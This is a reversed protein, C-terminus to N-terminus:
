SATLDQYGPLYRLDEIKVRVEKNDIPYIKIQRNGDVKVFAKKGIAPVEIELFPNGGYKKIFYDTLALALPGAHYQENWIAWSTYKFKFDMGRMVRLSDFIGYFLMEVKQSQEATTDLNTKFLAYKNEPGDSIKKQKNLEWCTEFFDKQTQGIEMGFILENYEKGSALEKKVMSTYESECSLFFIPILLLFINAKLLKLM